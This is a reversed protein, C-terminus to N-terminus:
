VISVAVLQRSIEPTGNPVTRGLGLLGIKIDTSAINSPRILPPM